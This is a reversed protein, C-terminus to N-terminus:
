QADEGSMIKAAKHCDSPSALGETTKGSWAHSLNRTTFGGNATNGDFKHINLNAHCVGFRLKWSKSVMQNHYTSTFYLKFSAKETAARGKSRSTGPQQEARNAGHILPPLESHHWEGHVKSKRWNKKFPKIVMCLCQISLPINDGM